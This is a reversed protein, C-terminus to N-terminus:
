NYNSVSSVLALIGTKNVAQKRARRSSKSGFFADALIGAGGGRGWAASAKAAQRATSRGDRRFL